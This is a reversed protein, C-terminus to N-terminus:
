NRNVRWEAARIGFSQIGGSTWRGEIPISHRSFEKTAEESEKVERKVADKKGNEKLFRLYTEAKEGM